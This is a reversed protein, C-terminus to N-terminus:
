RWVAASNKKFDEQAEASARTHRPRPTQKSMGLRQLYDWARQPSVPRNLKKTMWQAVKPGTWLGGGPPTERLVAERLEEMQLPSMMPKKGCRRRGDGLGEPGHRNYRRVLRRIWDVNYGCIDAVEGTKRGQQRLLIALWHLKETSDACARFRKKLETTTLHPEVTAHMPM